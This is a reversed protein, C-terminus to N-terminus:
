LGLIVHPIIWANNMEMSCWTSREGMTEFAKLMCWPFFGVANRRNTKHFVANPWDIQIWPTSRFIAAFVPRMTLSRVARRFAKNKMGEILRLTYARFVTGLEEPFFRFVFLSLFFCEIQYLWKKIWELVCKIFYLDEYRYKM